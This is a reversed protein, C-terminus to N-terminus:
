TSAGGPGGVKFEATSNRIIEVREILEVPLRLAAGPSRDGGPLALLTLGLFAGHRM